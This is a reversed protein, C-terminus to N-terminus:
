AAGIFVATERRCGYGIDTLCMTTFYWGGMFTQSKRPFHSQIKPTSFFSWCRLGHAYMRGWGFQKKSNPLLKRRSMKGATRFIRCWASFTRDAAMSSGNKQTRTESFPRRSCKWPPPLERSAIGHLQPKSLRGGRKLPYARTTFIVISSFLLLM